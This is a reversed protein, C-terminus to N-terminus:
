HELKQNTLLSQQANPGLYNMKALSKQKLDLLKPETVDGSDDECKTWRTFSTDVNSFCGVIPVRTMRYLSPHPVEDPLNTKLKLM